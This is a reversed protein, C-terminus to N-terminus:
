GPRGARLAAPVGHHLGDGLGAGRALGRGGSREDSLHARPDGLGEHRRRHLCVLADARLARRERFELGLRLTRFAHM